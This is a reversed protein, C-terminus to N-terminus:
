NKLYPELCIHPTTTGTSQEPKAISHVSTPEPNASSVTVGSDPDSRRSFCVSYPVRLIGTKLAVNPFGGVLSFGKARRPCCRWNSVVTGTSSKELQFRRCSIEPLPTFLRLGGARNPKDGPVKPWGTSEDPLGSGCHYRGSHCPSGKRVADCGNTRQGGTRQTSRSAWPRSDFGRRWRNLWRAQGAVGDVPAAASLSCFVRQYQVGAPRLSSVFDRGECPAICAFRVPTVNGTVPTIRLPFIRTM